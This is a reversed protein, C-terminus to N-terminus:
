CSGVKRGTKKRNTANQHKSIWLSSLALNRSLLVPTFYFYSFIAKPFLSCVFDRFDSVRNSQTEEYLLLNYGVSHHHVPLSKVAGVRWLALKEISRELANGKNCNKKTQAGATEYTSDTNDNNTGIREKNKIDRSTPAEQNYYKRPM